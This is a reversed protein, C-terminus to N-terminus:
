GPYVEAPSRGPRAAKEIEGAKYGQGGARALELARAKDEAPEASADGTVGITGIILTTLTVAVLSSLRLAAMGVEYVSVIMTSLVDGMGGDLIPLCSMM